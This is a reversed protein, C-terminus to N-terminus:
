APPDSLNNILLLLTASIIETFHVHRHFETLHTVTTCTARLPQLHGSPDVINWKDVSQQQVCLLQLPIKQLFFILQVVAEGNKVNTAIYNSYVHINAIRNSQM